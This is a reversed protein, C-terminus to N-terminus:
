EGRPPTTSPIILALIEALARVFYSPGFTNTQAAGLFPTKKEATFFSMM